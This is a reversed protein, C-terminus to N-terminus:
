PTFAHVVTIAPGQDGLGADGVYLIGNAVIPESFTKVDQPDAEHFLPSCQKPTGTCGQAGSGDFAFLHRTVTCIIDCSLDAIGVVYVVGNAVAPASTLGISPSLGPFGPPVLDTTSTWLPVCIKPAGTCGQVGFADFARLRHGGEGFIYSVVYVVGNAIAPPFLTPTLSSWLPSCQM